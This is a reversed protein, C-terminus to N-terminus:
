PVANVSASTSRRKFLVLHEVLHLQVPDLGPLHDLDPGKWTSNMWTVCEITLATASAMVVGSPTTIWVPSKL